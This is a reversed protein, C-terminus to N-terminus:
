EYKFLLVKSVKEPNDTDDEPLTENCVSQGNNTVIRVFLALEDGPSVAIESIPISGKVSPTADVTVPSTATSIWHLDTQDITINRWGAHEDWTATASVMGKTGFAYDAGFGSAATADILSGIAKDLVGKSDSITNMNKVGTGAGYDVDLYCLIANSSDVSGEITIELNSSSWEVKVNKLFNTTDGWDSVTSNEAFISESCKGNGDDSFGDDCLCVFTGNEDQCVTKNEETCPNPDCASVIEVCVGNGDDIFGEDCSCIAVGEEDQCTTRNEETCPNPYCVESIPLCIGEGNDEYGSDCSCIALGNEETCSTKYPENCPSPNCATTTRVCAGNDDHYGEDCSCLAEEGYQSCVTKHSKICPNPDCMTKVVCNGNLDEYFGIDCSCIAFGSDMTCVTRNPLACTGPECSGGSSNQVCVGSGDDDYGEDCSCTPVGNEDNCITKNQEACPNPTCVASLPACDGSGDSQYGEDCSCEAVGSNSQCVTKHLKTCPNPFCADGAADGDNESGGSDSSCSSILLSFVFVLYFILNMKVKL